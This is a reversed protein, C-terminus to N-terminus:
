SQTLGYTECYKKYFSLKIKLKKNCFFGSKIYDPKNILDHKNKAYFRMDARFLGAAM